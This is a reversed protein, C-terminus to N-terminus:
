PIQYIKNSPAPNKITKFTHIQLMKDWSTEPFPLFWVMIWKPLYAVMFLLHTDNMSTFYRGGVRLTKPICLFAKRGKKAKLATIKLCTKRLINCIGIDWGKFQLLWIEGGIALPESPILMLWSFCLKWARGFRYIKTESKIFPNTYHPWTHKPFHQLHVHIKYHCRFHGM